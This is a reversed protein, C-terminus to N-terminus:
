KALSLRGAHAFRYGPGKAFLWPSFERVVVQFAIRGIGIDKFMVWDGAFSHFPHRFTAPRNKEFVFARGLCLWLRM